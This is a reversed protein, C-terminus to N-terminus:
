HFILSLQDDGYMSVYCNINYEKAIDTFWVLCFINKGDKPKVSVSTDKVIIDYDDYNCVKKKIIAPLENWTIGSESKLQENTKM